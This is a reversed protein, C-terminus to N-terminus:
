NRRLRDLAGVVWPARTQEPRDKLPLVTDGCTRHAFGFGDEAYVREVRVTREYITKPDVTM